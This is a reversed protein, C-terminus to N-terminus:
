ESSAGNKTTSVEKNFCALNLERKKVFYLVLFFLAM